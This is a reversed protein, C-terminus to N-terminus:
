ARRGRRLAERTVTLTESTEHRTGYAREVAAAATDNHHAMLDQRLGGLATTKWSPTALRLVEEWGAKAGDLYAATLADVNPVDTAELDAAFAAAVKAAVVDRIPEVTV